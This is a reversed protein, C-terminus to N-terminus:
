SYPAARAEAFAAGAALIVALIVTAKGAGRPLEVLRRIIEERDRHAMLGRAPIVFQDNCIDCCREDAPKIPEPNHGYGIEERGCLSCKYFRVNGMIVERKHM